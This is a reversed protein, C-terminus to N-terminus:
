FIDVQMGKDSEINIFVTQPTLTHGNRLQGRAPARQEERGNMGVDDDSGATRGARPHGVPRM